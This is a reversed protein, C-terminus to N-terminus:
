SYPKVSPMKNFWLAGALCDSTVSSFNRPWEFGINTPQNPLCGVPNTATRDVEWTVLNGKEYERWQTGPPWNIGQIVGCHIEDLLVAELNRYPHFLQYKIDFRNSIVSGSHRMYANQLGYCLQELYRNRGQVADLWHILWRNEMAWKVM